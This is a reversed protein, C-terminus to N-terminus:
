SLTGRDLSREGLGAWWDGISTPLSGVDQFSSSTTPTTTSRRSPPSSNSDNFPDPRLDAFLPSSSPPLDNNGRTMTEPQVESAGVGVKLDRGDNLADHSQTNANGGAERLKLEAIGAARLRPHYPAEPVAGFGDFGDRANLNMAMGWEVMEDSKNLGVAADAEKVDQDPPSQPEPQPEFHLDQEDAWATEFVLTEDKARQTSAQQPFFGFAGLKPLSDATSASPRESKRPRKPSATSATADAKLDPTVPVSLIGDELHQWGRKSSSAVRPRASKNPQVPALPTTELRPPAPPNSPGAQCVSPEGRDADTPVPEIPSRSEKKPSSQFLVPFSQSPESPPIQSAADAMTQDVDPSQLGVSQLEHLSPRTQKGKKTKTKTERDGMGRVTLIPVPAQDKATRPVPEVAEGADLKRRSQKRSQPATSEKQLSQHQQVPLSWTLLTEPDMELANWQTDIESLKVVGARAPNYDPRPPPPAAFLTEHYETMAKTPTRSKPPTVIHHAAKRKRPTTPSAAPKPDAASAREYTQIHPVPSRTPAAPREGMATPRAQLKSYLGFTVGSENRPQEFGNVSTKFRGIARAQKGPSSKRRPEDFVSTGRRRRRASANTRLPSLVARGTAREEDPDVEDTLRVLDGHRDSKITVRRDFDRKAVMAMTPPYGVQHDDVTNVAAGTITNVLDSRPEWTPGGKHQLDNRGCLQQHMALIHAPVPTIPNPPESPPSSTKPVPKTTPSIHTHALPLPPVPDPPIHPLKSSPIAQTQPEVGDEIMMVPSPSASRTRLKAKANGDKIPSADSRSDSLDIIQINTTFKPRSPGSDPELVPCDDSGWFGDVPPKQIVELPLVLDDDANENPSLEGHASGLRIGTRPHPRNSRQKSAQRDTTTTSRPPTMYMGLTAQSPGEEERRTKSGLASSRSSSGYKEKGSLASRAIILKASNNPRTSSSSSSLRSPSPTAFGHKLAILPRQVPKSKSNSATDIWKSPDPAFPLPTKTM